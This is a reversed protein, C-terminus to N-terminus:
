CATDEIFVSDPFKEDAPLITVELGCSILAEIYADHQLLARHYDPQGVDADRLGYVMNHCPRKVIARTFM